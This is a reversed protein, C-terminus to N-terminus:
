YNYTEAWKRLATPCLGKITVKSLKPFQSNNVFNQINRYNGGCGGEGLGWCWSIILLELNTCLNITDLTCDIKQQQQQSKFDIENFELIKLSNIQTLISQDMLTSYWTYGSLKLSELNQQSSILSNLITAQSKIYYQTMKTIRVNDRFSHLYKLNNCIKSLSILFSYDCFDTDVELYKLNEVLCKFYNQDVFLLYCNDDRIYHNINYPILKLYNIQTNHNKFMNMILHILRDINNGDFDNKINRINRQYFYEQRINENTIHLHNELIWDIISNFMEFYDLEKIFSAYDFISGSRGRRPLNFGAMSLEKREKENMSMLLTEIIKKNSNRLKNNNNNSPRRSYFPKRWLYPITNQCWNRNIWTYSYIVRHLQTPNASYEKELYLFIEGIIDSPLFVM